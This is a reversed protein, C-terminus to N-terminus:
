TIVRKITVNITDKFIKSLKELAQLHKSPERAKKKNLKMIEDLLDEAIQTM